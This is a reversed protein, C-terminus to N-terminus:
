ECKQILYRPKDQKPERLPHAQPFQEWHCQQQTSPQPRKAKTTATLHPVVHSRFPLKSPATPAPTCLTPVTSALQSLTEKLGQLSRLERVHTDQLSHRAEALTVWPPKGPRRDVPPHSAKHASWILTCIHLCYCWCYSGNFLSRPLPDSGNFM